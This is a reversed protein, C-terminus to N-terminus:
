PVARFLSKWITTHGSGEIMCPALAAVADLNAQNAWFAHSSAEFEDMTGAGTLLTLGGYPGSQESVVAATSVGAQLARKAMDLFGVAAEGSRETNMLGTVVSYVHAPKAADAEHFLIQGLEEQMPAHFLPAMAEYQAWWAPNTSVADFAASLAGLSGVATMAFTGSPAGAFAMLVTAPIGSTTTATQASTVLRTGLELEKGPKATVMFRQIYM